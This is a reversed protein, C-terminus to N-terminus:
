SLPLWLLGALLSTVSLLVVAYDIPLFRIERVFTRSDSFGFGKSELAMSLQTIGRISSLFVPILLSRWKRLRELLHGSDVDLGRSRLAQAVTLSSGIITPVLRLATSLAMSVRYPVGLRVLALTIEENRTTSLFILGAVVMTTIRLAASIGFILSEVTVPGVVTRTGGYSFSWLMISTISIMVLILWIRRLNSLSQSLAGAGLVALALTSIVRLDTYLSAWIFVTLLLCLKTRPDLRHIITRRDLYLYLAM